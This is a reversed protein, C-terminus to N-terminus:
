YENKRWIEPFKKNRLSKVLKDLKTRDILIFLNKNM